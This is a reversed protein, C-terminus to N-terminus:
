LFEFDLILCVHLIHNYCLMLCIKIFTPWPGHASPFVVSKGHPVWSPTVFSSSTFIWIQISFIQLSHELTLLLSSPNWISSSCTFDRGFTHFQNARWAVTLPDVCSSYLPLKLSPLLSIPRGMHERCTMTERVPCKGSHKTVAQKNIRIAWRARWFYGEM